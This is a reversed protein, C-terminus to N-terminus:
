KLELEIRYLVRALGEATLKLMEVSEYGDAGKMSLSATVPGIRSKTWTYNQATAGPSATHKGMEFLSADANKVDEADYELSMLGSLSQGGGLEQNPCRYSEKVTDKIERDATKETRHVTITIAGQLTGKGDKAPMDIRRTYSDLVHSPLGSRSWVCDEGLVTWSGAVEYPNHRKMGPSWDNPELQANRTLRKAQAATKPVREPDPTFDYGDPLEGPLTSSGPSPTATGGEGGAQEASATPSPAKDSNDNEPSASPSSKAKDNTTSLGWSSCGTLGVGILGAVVVATGRSTSSRSIRSM